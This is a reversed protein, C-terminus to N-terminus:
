EFLKDTLLSDIDTGRHGNGNTWPTPKVTKPVVGM